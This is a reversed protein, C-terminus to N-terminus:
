RARQRKLKEVELSDCQDAVRGGLPHVQEAVKLREEVLPEGALLEDDAVKGARGLLHCDALSWAVVCLKVVRQSGEAGVGIKHEEPEVLRKGPGSADLLELGVVPLEEVFQRGLIGAVIGLGWRPQHEDRRDGDLRGVCRQGTRSLPVRDQGPIAVGDAVHGRGPAQGEGVNEVSSM